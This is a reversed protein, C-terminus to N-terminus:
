KYNNYARLDMIQTSFKNCEDNNYERLEVEESLM